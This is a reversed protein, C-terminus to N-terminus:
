GKQDFKLGKSSTKKKRPLGLDDDDDYDDHQPVIYTCGQAPPEECLHFIMVGLSMSFCEDDKVLVIFM